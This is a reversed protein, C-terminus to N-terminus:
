NADGEGEFLIERIGQRLHIKGGKSEIYDVIPNHLFEQPSGELMRLVSAETRTAFFQFITLMCRASINECDIFGLGYAIADWM